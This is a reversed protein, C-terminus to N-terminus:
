LHPRIARALARTAPAVVSEDLRGYGVVLGGAAAPRIRFDSLAPVAIRSRRAAEAITADEVGPPLGLLVHVGAAAGKVTLEPLQGALESLLRDRRARYIIRARRVHRSYHGRTIFEALIAQDLTPSFDDLLRKTREVADALRPPVVLWGLRLAPALTKSVTGLQM